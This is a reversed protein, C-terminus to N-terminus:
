DKASIIQVRSKINRIIVKHSKTNINKNSVSINLWHNQFDILTNCEM